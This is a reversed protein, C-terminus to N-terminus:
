EEEEEEGELPYLDIHVKRQYITEKKLLAGYMTLQGDRTNISIEIM